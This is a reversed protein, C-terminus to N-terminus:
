AMCAPSKSYLRRASGPSGCHDAVLLSPVHSLDLVCSRSCMACGFARSSIHEAVSSSAAPRHALDIRTASHFALEIQSRPSQKQEFGACAFVERICACATDQLAQVRFAREWPGVQQSSHHQEM